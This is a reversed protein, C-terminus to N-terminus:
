KINIQNVLIKDPNEFSYDTSKKKNHHTQNKNWLLKLKVFYPVTGEIEKKLLLKLFISALESFM